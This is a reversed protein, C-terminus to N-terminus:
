SAMAGSLSELSTQKRKSLGTAGHSPMRNCIKPVPGGRADPTGKTPYGVVAPVWFQEQPDIARACHALPGAPDRTLRVVIPGGAKQVHRQFIIRGISPLALCSM